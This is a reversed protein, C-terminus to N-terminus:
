PSMVLVIHMRHAHTYSFIWADDNSTVVGRKVAFLIDASVHAEM